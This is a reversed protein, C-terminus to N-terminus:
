IGHSDSPFGMLNTAWNLREQLSLFFQVPNAQFDLNINICKHAELPL